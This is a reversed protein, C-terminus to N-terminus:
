LPYATVFRPRQSGTDIIWVTRMKISRGHPGLLSGDIVYKTGYPSPKVEVAAESLAIALLGDELIGIKEDDFGIARLLRAKSGGVPHDEALLYSELKGSPIYASDRNPLDM